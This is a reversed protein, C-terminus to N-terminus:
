SDIFKLASNAMMVRKVEQGGFGYWFTWFLITQIFKMTREAYRAEFIYKLHLCM